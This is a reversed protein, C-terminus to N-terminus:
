KKEHGATRLLDTLSDDGIWVYGPQRAFTPSMSSLDLKVTQITIAKGSTLASQTFDRAATGGPQGLEWCDIGQLRIDVAPDILVGVYTGLNIRLRFTDGDHVSVLTAKHVYNPVPVSM